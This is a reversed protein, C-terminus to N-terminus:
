EAERKQHVYAEIGKGKLEKVLNRAESESRFRDVMVVAYAGRNFPEVAANSYGLDRIKRAHSEANSKISFSGALVLYEGASSSSTTRVPEDYSEAEQTSTTGSESPAPESDLAASGGTSAEDDGPPLIQSTDRTYDYDYDQYGDDQTTEQQTPESSQNRLQITRYVLFILAGVCVVIIGITVYDLRSM